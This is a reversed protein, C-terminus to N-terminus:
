PKEHSRDTAYLVLDGLRAYPLQYPQNALLGAGRMKTGTLKLVWMSEGIGSLWPRALRAAFSVKVLPPHLTKRTLNKKSPMAKQISLASPKGLALLRPFCCSGGVFFPM